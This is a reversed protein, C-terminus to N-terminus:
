ALQFARGGGSLFGLRHQAGPALRTVSALAHDQVVELRHLPDAFKAICRQRRLVDQFQMTDHGGVRQVVRGRGSAQPSGVLVDVDDIVSVTAASRANL